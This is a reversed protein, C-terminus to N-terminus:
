DPSIVHNRRSSAGTHSSRGMPEPRLPEATPRKIDLSPPSKPVFQEASSNHSRGASPGTSRGPRLAVASAFTVMSTPLRHPLVTPYASPPALERTDVILGLHPPHRIVARLGQALEIRENPLHQRPDLRPSLYRAPGSGSALRAPDLAARRRSSAALLRVQHAATDNIIRRHGHGTASSSRTGLPPIRRAAPPPMEGPCRRQPASQRDPLAASAPPPRRCM